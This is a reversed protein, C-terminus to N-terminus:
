KKKSPFDVESNIYVDKNSTAYSSCEFVHTGEKEVDECKVLGTAGNSRDVYYGENGSKTTLVQVGYSQIKLLQYKGDKKNVFKAGNDKMEIEESNSCYYFKGDEKKIIDGDGVCKAAKAVLKITKTTWDLKVAINSKTTVGPFKNAEVTLLYENNDNKFTIGTNDNCFKTEENDAFAVKGVNSSCDSTTVVACNSKSTCEIGSAAGSAPINLYYGQATVEMLKCSTATTCYILPYDQNTTIDANLYYSADAATPATFAHKGESASAFNGVIGATSTSTIISKKDSNVLYFKKTDAATVICNGEYKIPESGTVYTCQVGNLEQVDPKSQLFSKCVGNNCNFYRKASDSSNCLDEFRTIIEGTSAKACLEGTFSAPYTNYDLIIRNDYASVSYYNASVVSHFPTLYEDSNTSHKVFYFKKDGTSYANSNFKVTPYVKSGSSNEYEALCLSIGNTADNVLKGINDKSCSGSPTTTLLKCTGNICSAYKTEKKLFYFGTTSTSKTTVSSGDYYIVFGTLDAQSTADNRVFYYSNSYNTCDGTKSATNESSKTFACPEASIARGYLLGVLLPLSFHKFNVM